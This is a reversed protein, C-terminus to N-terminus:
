FIVTGVCLLGAGYDILMGIKIEVRQIKRSILKRNIILVCSM